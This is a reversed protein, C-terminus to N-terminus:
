VTAWFSHFLGPKISIKEMMKLIANWEQEFIFNYVKHKELFIERALLAPVLLPNRLSFCEVNVVSGPWYNHPTFVQKEYQSLLRDLRWDVNEDGEPLFVPSVLSYHPRVNIVDEAPLCATWLFLIILHGSSFVSCWKSFRTSINGPGRWCVSLQLLSQFQQLGGHRGHRGVYLLPQFQQLRQEVPLLLLLFVGSVVLPTCLLDTKAALM